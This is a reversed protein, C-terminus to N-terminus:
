NGSLLPNSGSLLPSQSSGQNGGGLSSFPFISGFYFVISNIESSLSTMSIDFILYQPDSVDDIQRTVKGYRINNEDVIEGQGYIHLSNAGLNVLGVAKNKNKFIKNPVYNVPRAPIYTPTSGSASVTSGPNSAPPTYTYTTAPPSVMPIVTNVNFTPEILDVVYNSNLLIDVRIKFGFMIPFRDLYTTKWGYDPTPTTSTNNQINSPDIVQTYPQIIVYLNNSSAMNITPSNIIEDNNATAFQPIYVTNDSSNIMNDNLTFIKLGSNNNKNNYIYSLALKSDTGFNENIRSINNFFLNWLYFITIFIVLVLVFYLLYKNKRNFLLNPKMINKGFFVM